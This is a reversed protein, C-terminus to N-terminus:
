LLLSFFIQTSKKILHIIPPWKLISQINSAFLESMQNKNRAKAGQSLAAIRKKAYLHKKLSNKHSTTFSCLHCKFPKLKEHVSEIHRRLTVYRFSKFNCLECAVKKVKEHVSQVHCKLDNQRAAAFECLNCKFPKVKVHIKKIHTKLTSKRGTSLHCRNCSFPKKWLASGDCTGGFYSQSVLFFRVARMQITEGKRPCKQLTRALTIQLVILIFMDRMPSIKERVRPQSLFAECPKREFQLTRWLHFVRVGHKNKSRLM